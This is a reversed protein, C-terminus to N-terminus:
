EKKERKKDKIFFNTNYLMCKRLGKEKWKGIDKHM